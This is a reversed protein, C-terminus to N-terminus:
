AAAGERLGRGPRAGFARWHVVGAANRDRDMVLGCVPCAHTRDRLTKPVVALCRTGDPMTGSCEQTTGRADVLVVERGASEAKYALIEFFTAWAADNVPKALMGSALGKVNLDERAIRDYDRVVRLATKHHFDKRVNAVHAHHKALLAAAKRRRKSGRKRRSVVRAARELKIRASRLPRPNDINTGDSLAAFTTLGADIGVSRGTAHLPKAPVDACCILAYWHGDSDLKVSITKIHGECPRHLRLKISGVGHVRLRKGGAVVAAGNGNAADQFSFVRFRDRGKFRPYGPKEGAKVRRFFARFAFDLRKVVDQLLHSHVAAYEPVSHRVETASRAQM